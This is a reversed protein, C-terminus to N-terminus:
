IKKKLFIKQINSRHTYFTSIVMVIAFFIKFPHEKLFLMVLPLFLAGSLSGMGVNRTLLTVLLWVLMAWFLSSPAIGLFVGCSTAVGKGGKFRLFLSWNHGSIVFFGMLIQYVLSPIPLTFAAEFFRSLPSVALFGKGIDLLLTVTGPGKGLVRFANTAGVNGSGHQRLDIGKLWKGFLYSPSLSGLLYASVFSLFLAMM